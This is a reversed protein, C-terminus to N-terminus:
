KKEAPADDDASWQKWGPVFMKVKPHSADRDVM